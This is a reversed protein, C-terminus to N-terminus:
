CPLPTLCYLLASLIIEQSYPVPEVGLTARVSSVNWGYEMKQKKGGTSLVMILLYFTLRFTGQKEDGLKGLSEEM